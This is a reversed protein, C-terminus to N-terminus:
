ARIARIARAPWPAAYLFARFMVEYVNCPPKASRFFQRIMIVFTTVFYVPIILAFIEFFLM